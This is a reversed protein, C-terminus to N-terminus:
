RSVSKSIQLNASKCIQVNTFACTVADGGFRIVQGGYSHALDIMATFYANLVRTLEEAGEKGLQALSESMATFGSVDAFLLAASVWEEQWAVSARPAAIARRAIPGPVYASISRLLAQKEQGM